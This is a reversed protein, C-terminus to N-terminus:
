SIFFGGAIHSVQTGDRPQSSGKSFLFAVWELIRAQLIEHVTYAMSDCLTLCSEAVKVKWVEARRICGAHVLARWTGLHNRMRYRNDECSCQWPFSRLGMECSLLGLSLPTVQALGCGCHAAGGPDLAM